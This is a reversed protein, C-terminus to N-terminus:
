KKENFLEDLIDISKNLDLEISSSGEQLLKLLSPTTIVKMLANYLSIKDFDVIYGNIGSNVQESIGSFTTAIIPKKLIMAETVTTAFGEYRSPQVYIDAQALYPYPNKEYGHLIFYNSLDYDDIVQGLSEREEGDGIIIWKFRLKNNRLLNAVEVAMDFGKQKSLRGISVLLIENDEKYILKAKEKAKKIIDEKFIINHLVTLKTNNFDSFVKKFNNICDKSVGFISAFKDYSSKIYLYSPNINEEHIWSYKDIKPDLAAALYTTFYAYGHYDCVIDYNFKNVDILKICFYYLFNKKFIITSLKNTFKFLIFLFLTIYQKSKLLKSTETKITNGFDYIITRMKDNIELEKVNINEPIRDLFDGTKKILILDIKYKNKDMSKLLNVLTNEVGGCGMSATLFLLKRM